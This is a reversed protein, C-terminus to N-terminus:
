SGIFGDRGHCGEYPAESGVCEQGPWEGSIWAVIDSIVEQSVHEYTSGASGTVTRVDFMSHTHHRYMRFAANRRHFVSLIWTKPEEFHLTADRNGFLALLPIRLTHAVEEPRYGVLNVQYTLRVRPDDSVTNGAALSAILAARSKFFNIRSKEDETVVGDLEAGRQQARWGADHIAGSPAAIVVIGAVGQDRQAIRPAAFGGLSLGLVYIRAPDIRPTQRLTALAALADNVVDEDMTFDPQRAAALAHTWVREDYRMTAIGQTALGWAFDRLVKSANGTGDRDSAEAGGILLVAAFPGPGRPVTLTAELEWPTQGIMVEYEEFSNREAYPPVPYAEASGPQTRAEEVTLGGILGDNFFILTVDLEDIGESTDLTLRLSVILYDYIAIFELPASVEVAILRSFGDGTATSWMSELAVADLEGAAWGDPAFMASAGQFDDDAMARVFERARAEPDFAFPAAKSDPTPTTAKTLARAEPDSAVPAAKPAPTPTAAETLARAQAESDSALPAAKPAPTPTAAETLARAQAESDSAFPTAESDPTATTAADHTQPGCSVVGTVTVVGLLIATAPALVGAMEATRRLM